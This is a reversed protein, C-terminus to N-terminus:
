YHYYKSLDFSPIQNVLIKNLDETSINRLLTILDENPHINGNLYPSIAQLTMSCMDITPQKIKTRNISENEFPLIAVGSAINLDNQIESENLNKIRRKKILFASVILIGTFLRFYYISESKLQISEDYDEGIYNIINKLTKQSEDTNIKLIE